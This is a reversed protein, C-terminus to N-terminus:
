EGKRLIFKGHEVVFGSNVRNCRVSVLKEVAVERQPIEDM